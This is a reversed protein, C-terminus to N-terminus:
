RLRRDANRILNIIKDGLQTAIVCTGGCTPCTEKGNTTLVLGHECHPNPCRTELQASLLLDDFEQQTM